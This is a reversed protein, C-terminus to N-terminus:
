VPGPPPSINGAAAPDRGTVEALMSQLAERDPGALAMGSPATALNKLMQETMSRAPPLHSSLVLEPNMQRIWNLEATFKAEDVKALWPSDVTLWLVQAERLEGTDFAAAEEDPRPLLAGFCDSSFLAGSAGDYFGTTAPNDFTPPKMATLTRDGLDLSEGPNLFYVRDLEVKAFLSVLGYGAFTTILRLRPSREMVELLSGVHDQDPHTLYLWRLESPDILSELHRMFEGRDDNLGADVLVPEQARLLFANVFMTGYGAVPYFSPLVHIDSSVQRPPEV